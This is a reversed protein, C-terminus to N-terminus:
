FKKLEALFSADAYFLHHLLFLWLCVDGDRARIAAASYHINFPMSAITIKLDLEFAL